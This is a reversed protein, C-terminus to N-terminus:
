KKRYGGKPFGGKVGRTSDPDTPEPSIWQRLNEKDEVTVPPTDTFLFGSTLYAYPYIDKFALFQDHAILEVGDDRSIKMNEPNNGSDPLINYIVVLEGGSINWKTNSNPSFKMTIRLPAQADGEIDLYQSIEPISLGFWGSANSSVHESYSWLIEGEADPSDLNVLLNFQDDAILEGKDSLLGQINLELQSQGFATLTFACLITLVLSTYKSNSSM